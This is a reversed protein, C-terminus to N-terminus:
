QKSGKYTSWAEDILRKMMRLEPEMMLKCDGKTVQFADSFTSSKVYYIPPTAKPSKKLTYCFEEVQNRVTKFVEVEAGFDAGQAIKNKNFVNKFLDYLQFDAKNWVKLHERDEETFPIHTKTKRTNLPVFLIDKMDWCLLRKMLVLSEEFEEMLLMLEYDNNLENIFTKIFHEDTFKQSPLGLDFSMKNHIYYIGSMKFKDPHKLFETLVSGSINLKNDKNYKLLAPYFGFYSVASKFHSEPERLIGLYKTKNPMINRFATKNYVVHNCLINYTENVPLPIIKERTVTKGYGLYNFGSGTSKNPLVINLGHQIAFRLFINMVTTSGAKHVKLFSINYQKMCREKPKVSTSIAGSAILVTEVNINGKVGALIRNQFHDVDGTPIGTVMRSCSYHLLLLVAVTM